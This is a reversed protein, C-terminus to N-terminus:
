IHILSLYMDASPGFGDLLQISFKDSDTVHIRAKIWEKEGLKAWPTEYYDFVTQTPSTTESPM